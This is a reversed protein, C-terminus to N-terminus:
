GLNPIYNPRYYTHLKDNKMISTKHKIPGLRTVQDLCNAKYVLYGM